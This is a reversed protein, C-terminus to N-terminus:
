YKLLTNGVVSTRSVKGHIIHLTEYLNVVGWAEDGSSAIGSLRVASGDSDGTLLELALQM